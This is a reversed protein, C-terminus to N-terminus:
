ACVTDIVVRTTGVTDTVISREETWCVQLVAPEVLKDVKCGVVLCCALLLVKM